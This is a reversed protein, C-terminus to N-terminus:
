RPFPSFAKQARKKQGARDFSFRHIPARFLFARVIRFHDKRKDKVGLSFTFHSFKDATRKLPPSSLKFIYGGLPRRKSSCTSVHLVTSIHFKRCHCRCNLNFTNDKASPLCEPFHQPHTTLRSCLQSLSTRLVCGWRASSGNKRAQM